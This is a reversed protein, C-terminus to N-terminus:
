RRRRSAFVAGVGLLAAGSPAPVPVLTALVFSGAQESSVAGFKYGDLPSPVETPVTRNTTDGLGLQGYENDGWAWLRGDASLAYSSYIGAAVARINTLGPVVVPSYRDTTTGDGLQGYENNGWVRVTGDSLLAMSQSNGAAVSAVGSLGPVAVSTLRNTTTGDGV